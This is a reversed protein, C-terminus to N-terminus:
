AGEEARRRVEAKVSEDLDPNFLDEPSTAGMEAYLSLVADAISQKPLRLETSLNNTLNMVSRSLAVNMGGGGFLERLKAEIYRLLEGRTSPRFADARLSVGDKAFNVGESKAQVNMKDVMEAIIVDLNGGFRDFIQNAKVLVVSAVEGARADDIGLASQVMRKTKTVRDIAQFSATRDHGEGFIHDLLETSATKDLNGILVDRNQRNSQNRDYQTMM